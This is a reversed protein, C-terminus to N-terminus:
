LICCVHFWCNKTNGIFKNNGRIVTVSCNISDGKNPLGVVTTIFLMYNQVCNTILFIYQTFNVVAATYLMVVYLISLLLCVGYVMSSICSNYDVFKRGKVSGSPHNGPRCSCEM